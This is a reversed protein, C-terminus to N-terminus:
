INSQVQKEVVCGDYGDGGGGGGGGMRIIGKWNCIHNLVKAIIFWQLTHTNHEDISVIDSQQPVCNLFDSTCRRTHKHAIPHPSCVFHRLLMPTYLHFLSFLIDFASIGYCRSLVCVTSLMQVWQFDCWQFIHNHCLYFVFYSPIMSINGPLSQIIQAKARANQNRNEALFFSNWHSCNGSKKIKPACRKTVGRYNYIIFFNLLRMWLIRVWNQTCRNFRATCDISVLM